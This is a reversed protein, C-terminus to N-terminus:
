PTEIATAEPDGVRVTEWSGQSVVHGLRDQRFGKQHTNVSVEAVEFRAVSNLEQILREQTGVALDVTYGGAKLFMGPITHRAQYIGPEREIGAEDDTDFTSLLPITNRALTAALQLGSLRETLQYTVTLTLEDALDFTADDSGPSTVEVGLVSCPLTPDAELDTRHGGRAAVLESYDGLVETVKGDAIKKGRELLVAHTCLEAVAGINHSVFLVTRGKRAVEDMKGLCKKQFAIDGVALVEDIILIEPELHAAVAFALRVFMGSSYHKVPTDLFRDIEAFEVIEDFQRRIEPRKMGLIAGNLYINERGTLEQHFGTGVELLSGVRGRFEVRGRTPDTIRSLIKLLTTKGAGNRGIIGLVEGERVEMSVDELAWFEGRAHEARMKGPTDSRSLRDTLGHWLSETMRGYANVRTGIHYQKYLEEVSVAVDSM